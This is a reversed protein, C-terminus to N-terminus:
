KVRRLASTSYTKFEGGPEAIEFTETFEDPGIFRYTERARFGPPINEISVTVFVVTAPADTPEQVYHNVFGEVHFQRLMLRKAGRDYSFIGRDEHVEGKPNKEQPEYTSRNFAEIFRGGLMEKYEREVRSVGPEGEGTGEWKGILSRIAEFPDARKAPPTDQALLGAALLPVITLMWSPALTKM